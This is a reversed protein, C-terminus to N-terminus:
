LCKWPANYAQIFEAKRRIIHRYIVTSDKHSLAAQAMSTAESCM